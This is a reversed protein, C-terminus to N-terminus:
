QVAKNKITMTVKEEGNKKTERRTQNKKDYKRLIYTYNNYM